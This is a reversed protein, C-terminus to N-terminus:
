PGLVEVSKQKRVGFMITTINRAHFPPSLLEYNVHQHPSPPM